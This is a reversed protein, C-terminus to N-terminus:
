GGDAPADGEPAPEQAPAASAASAPEQAPVADADPTSSVAPDRSPCAESAPAAASATRRPAESHPHQPVTRYVPREEPLALVGNAYEIVHGRETIWALQKLLPDQEPPVEPAGAHLAEILEARTVGPHTRLHDFIAKLEPVAHQVDLPAPARAMVFDIGRGEGARFVHLRKHRFAGRLAFFLSAPYRLERRWAEQVAAALVRDRLAMAVAHTCVVHRPTTVLGPLIERAFLTEAAARDFGEAVPEAAPAAEVGAPVAESAAPVPEGSAAPASGSAAPAAVTGATLSAADPKRRYLVRHAAAQRWEEVAEADRVTEIRARYVEEPVHRCEGRLMEQIRQNYSHHNPPALLKGTYGCRAVCVFTGSPPDGTVEEATFFEGFHAELAHKRLEAEHLAVHGCRACQHFVVGEAGPKPDIRVECSAPHDLFLLALDRIPFARHGRAVKHLVVSLAKPEPLFRVEVPGEAAQAAYPPEAQRFPEKEGVRGPSSFRAVPAGARTFPRGGERPAGGRDREFSPRPRRPDFGGDRRESARREPWRGGRRRDRGGPLEREEAPVRDAFYQEYRRQGSPERTWNPALTLDGLIDPEKKQESM